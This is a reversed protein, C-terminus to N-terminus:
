VLHNVTRQVTLLQELTLLETREVQEHALEFHDELEFAEVLFVVYGSVTDFLQDLRQDQLQASQHRSVKLYHLRERMLVDELLRLVQRLGLSNLKSLM